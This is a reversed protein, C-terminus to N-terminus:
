LQPAKSGYSIRFWNLETALNHRIRQLGVTQLVGPKGTWWCSRSGVWVRTWWTLSAKWGDWGRNDGEGGAKLREWCWPRKWHTLEECGTALTNSNWSCCWLCWTTNLNELHHKAADTCHRGCQLEALVLIGKCCSRTKAKKLQTYRYCSYGLKIDIWEQKLSLSPFDIRM